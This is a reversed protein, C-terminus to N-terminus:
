RLLNQIERWEKRGGFDKIFITTVTSVPAHIPFPKKTQYFNKLNWFLSIDGHWVLIFLPSREKGGEGGGRETNREKQWACNEKPFWANKEACCLVAIPQWVDWMWLSWIFIINSKGEEKMTQHNTQTESHISLFGKKLESVFFAQFDLNSLKLFALLKRGVSKEKHQNPQDPGTARQFIWQLNCHHECPLPDMHLATSSQERAWGGRCDQGQLFWGPGRQRFAM